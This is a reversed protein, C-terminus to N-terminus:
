DWLHKLHEAVWKISAQADQYMDDHNYGCAQAMAYAELIEGHMTLENQWYKETYQPPYTNGHEALFKLRPAIWKALSSDLSICDKGITTEWPKVDVKNIPNIAISSFSNTDFDM